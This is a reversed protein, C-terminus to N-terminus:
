LVVGKLHALHRLWEHCAYECCGGMMRECDRLFVVVTEKVFPYMLQVFAYPVGIVGEPSEELCCAFLWPVGVCDEYECGVM